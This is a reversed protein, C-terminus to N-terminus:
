KDLMYLAHRFAILESISKNTILFYAEANRPSLLVGGDAVCVREKKSVKNM